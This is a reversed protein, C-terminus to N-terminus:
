GRFLGSVMERFMKAKAVMIGKSNTLDSLLNYMNSKGGGVGPSEGERGGRHLVDKSGCRIQEWVLEPGNDIAESGGNLNSIMDMLLFNLAEFGTNHYKLLLHIILIISKGLTGRPILLVLLAEWVEGDGKIVACLSKGAENLLKIVSPSCSKM